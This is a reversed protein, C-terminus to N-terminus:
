CENQLEEVRAVQEMRGLKRERIVNTTSSYWSALGAVQEWFWDSGKVTMLGGLIEM